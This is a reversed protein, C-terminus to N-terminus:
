NGNVNVVKDVKIEAIKKANELFINIAKTFQFSKDDVFHVINKRKCKRILDEISVQKCIKYYSSNKITDTLEELTHYTMLEEYINKGHLNFEYVLVALVLMLKRSLDEKTNSSSLYFIEENKILDHQFSEKFFSTYYDYNKQIKEYLEDNFLIFKGATLNTVIEYHYDPFQFSIQEEM